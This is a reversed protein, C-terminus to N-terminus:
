GDSPEGEHTLSNIIANAVNSWLNRQGQETRILRAIKAVAVNHMIRQEDNELETLVLAVEEALAGPFKQYMDLVDNRTMLSDPRDNPM